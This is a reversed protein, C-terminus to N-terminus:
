RTSGPTARISSWPCARQPPWRSSASSYRSSRRKRFAGTIISGSRALHKSELIGRAIARARRFTNEDAKLCDNPHVGVTAFIFPYTEALRVAASLDPPGEGTGISLMYKIGAERAREIVAARDEHFQADDLHCHSDVLDVFSNSGRAWQSMRM